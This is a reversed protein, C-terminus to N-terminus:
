ISNKSGTFVKALALVSGARRCPLGSVSKPTGALGAQPGIMRFNLLQRRLASARVTQAEQIESDLLGATAPIVHLPENLLDGPVTPNKGVVFQHPTYGYNQIMQNKVHAHKVCREWALKDSPSHEKINKELARAFWGGHSEARGLQWHAEAPIFKVSTGLSESPAQLSEGLM